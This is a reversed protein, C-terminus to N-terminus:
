RTEELPTPHCATRSSVHASQDFAGVLALTAVPRSRGDQATIGLDDLLAEPTTLPWLARHRAVIEPRRAVALLALGHNRRISDPLVSPRPVLKIIMEKTLQDLSQGIVAAGLTELDMYFNDERGENFFWIPSRGFHTRIIVDADRSLQGSSRAIAEQGTAWRMEKVTRGQDDKQTVSRTRVAGRKGRVVTGDANLLPENVKVPMEMFRRPVRLRRLAELPSTQALAEPQSRILEDATVSWNREFYSFSREIEPDDTPPLHVHYVFGGEASWEITLRSWPM